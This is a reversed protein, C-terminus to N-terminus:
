GHVVIVLRACCYSIICVYTHLYTRLYTRVYLCITCVTCLPAVFEACSDGVTCLPGWSGLWGGLWGAVLGGLGVVSGVM